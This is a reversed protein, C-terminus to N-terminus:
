EGRLQGLRARDRLIVAAKPTHRNSGDTRNTVTGVKQSTAGRLKSTEMTRRGSGGGGAAHYRNEQLDVYPRMRVLGGRTGPRKSGGLHQTLQKLLYDQFLHQRLRRPATQGKYIGTKEVGEFSRMLLSGKRAPRQKEMRLQQRPESNPGYTASSACERCSIMM